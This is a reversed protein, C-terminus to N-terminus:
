TDPTGSLSSASPLTSGPSPFVISVRPISELQYPRTIQNASKLVHSRGLFLLRPIVGVWRPIASSNLLTRPLGTSLNLIGDKAALGLDDVM